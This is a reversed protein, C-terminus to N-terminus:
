SAFGGYTRVPRPPNRSNRCGACPIAMVVERVWVPTACRASCRDGVGFAAPELGAVRGCRRQVARVPLWAARSRSGLPENSFEVASSSRGPAGMAARTSSAHAGVWTSQRATARRACPLTVPECGTPSGTRRILGRHAFRAAARRSCSAARRDLLVVCCLGRHDTPM